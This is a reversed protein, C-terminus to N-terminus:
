EANRIAKFDKPKTAGYDITCDGSAGVLRGTSSAVFYYGDSGEESEIRGTSFDDFIVQGGSNCTVRGAQGYNVQKNFYAESCASLSIALVAAILMNKM